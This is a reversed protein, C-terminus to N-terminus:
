GAAFLRDVHGTCMVAALQQAQACGRRPSSVQDATVRGALPRDNEPDDTAALTHYNLASAVLAPSVGWLVNWFM